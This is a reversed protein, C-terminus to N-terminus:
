YPVFYNYREICLFRWEPPTLSKHGDTCHSLLLVCLTLERRVRVIKNEPYLTDVIM